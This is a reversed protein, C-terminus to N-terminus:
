RIVGSAQTQVTRINGKTAKIRLKPKMLITKNKQKGHTPSPIPHTKDMPTFHSIITTLPMSLQSLVDM